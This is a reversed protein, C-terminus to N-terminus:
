RSISTAAGASITTVSGVFFPVLSDGDTTGDTTFFVSNGETATNDGPVLYIGYGYMQGVLDVDTPYHIDFRVNRNAGTGTLDGRVYVDLNDGKNLVIGDPFTSTFYRGDESEASYSKDGVVTEVNKFDSASASGSQDWTISNLKVNEASNVSLRIGSFIIGTDTIYRTRAGNPDYPSLSATVSGIALSNNLTQFTGSVPLAGTVTTSADIAVIKFSAMQADYDTLDVAMEGTVSVEVASGAPITFPDAFTARHNSHLYATSQYADDVFLDLAIFAADASPGIREVTMSNVAVDSSGATLTARTFPVYIAGAPALTYDPQDTATVTLESSSATPQAASVAASPASADNASVNACLENLKARTAAGVIGTGKTLGNPVLIDSAYKEQLKIVAKKTLGGFLYTENGASGPGTDAISTDPYSNLFKQLSMVDEGRSGVKLNNTWAYPCPIASASVIVPIYLIVLLLLLFCLATMRSAGVLM